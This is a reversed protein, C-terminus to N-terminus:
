NCDFYLHFTMFKKNDYDVNKVFCHHCFLFSYFVCSYATSGNDLQLM